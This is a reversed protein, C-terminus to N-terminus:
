EFVEASAAIAPPITLGLRLATQRNVAVRIREPRAVPISRPRKGSLVAAILAATKQATEEPDAGFSALAGARVHAPSLGFLPVGRRLSELLIRGTTQPVFVRTDAVTWLADVRELLPVLKRMADAPDAVPQGVITFGHAAAAKTANAVIRGTEAESYLVGIRKASPLFERIRLFVADGRVDLSVGTVPDESSSLFGSEEPYLVMTFVIPLPNPDAIAVSTALSGIPVVVAAGSDRVKRMVAPGRAADGDLDFTLLEPQVPDATLAAAIAEGARVYPPITSSRLLAVTPRAEATVTLGLVLIAFLLRLKM